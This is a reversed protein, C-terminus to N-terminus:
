KPEEKEELAAIAMRLAEARARQRCVLLDTESRQARWQDRFYEATEAMERLVSVAQKTKM